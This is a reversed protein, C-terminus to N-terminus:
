GTVWLICNSKQRHLMSNNLKTSVERVTLGKLDPITPVETRDSVLSNSEGLKLLSKQLLLGKTKEYVTARKNETANETVFVPMFGRRHLAFSAMKQFVPAAVQSGYFDKKPNDVAIYITFQPNHSPVFGAFSSIYAHRLYGRGVAGVKQATGTKGAVPYGDVRAMVGTAGDQTAGSLMLTLLGAEKQNLVQRIMQPGHKELIHGDSDIISGVIYPRMLRGGNAIASYANVMQLATVGIGHGFSVNSFLHDPWRGAVLLGAAEGPFDIGTKAFFGFNKVLNKYNEQGVDFAIKTSGVNSSLELIEAVTLWGYSHKAEAEHIIHKGIKFEGNECFYKSNPFIRGTKMAAAVAVVKFTSGPEFIDTVIRNRRLDSPTQSGLSSEFSPYNAMALIEGTNPDQIIGMTHDANQIKTVIELQRELEYQLEKDITTELSAGDASLEFLQGNVILPRGRADRRSPLTRLEGKLESDYKKEIGELGFGDAGVFGLTQSFLSQNPYARKGEEIFVLGPEHWSKIEKVTAGEMWRKLWVFKKSTVNLKELLDSSTLGLLPSLKRALSRPSKVLSPDAYLSNSAVSTALEEGRRDLIKGRQPPLSVITLYQNKRLRELAQNPILQLYFFRLAVLVLLSAFFLFLVIVRSKM